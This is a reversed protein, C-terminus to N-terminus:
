DSLNLQQYYLLDSQVSTPLHIKLKPILVFLNKNHITILHSRIFDRCADILKLPTTGEAMARHNDCIEKLFTHKRLYKWIHGAEGIVNPRKRMTDTWKLDTWPHVANGGNAKIRVYSIYPLWRYLDGLGAAHLLFFINTTVKPKLPLRIGHGPSPLGVLFPTQVRDTM